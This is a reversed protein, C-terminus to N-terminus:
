SISKARSFPGGSLRPTVAQPMESTRPRPTPATSAISPNTMELRIIPSASVVVAMPVSSGIRRSRPSSPELNPDYRVAAPATPSNPGIM